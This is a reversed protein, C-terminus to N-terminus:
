GHKERRWKDPPQQSARTSFTLDDENEPLYKEIGGLGDSSGFFVEKDDANDVVLLWPGAAKSGLYDQVSQKPDEGKAQQTIPLMKLMNVYAQEFAAKTTAPVSFVSYDPKNDKVWYAFSLALQTKGVGGLGVVAVKQSSNNFLRLLHKGNNQQQEVRIAPLGERESIRGVALFFENTFRAVLRSNESLYNTTHASITSAKGWASLLTHQLGSEVNFRFYQGDVGHLGNLRDAVKKSSTAMKKLANLIDSRSDVGAVDGMATGISLIQLKRGPFRRKAKGILVECPNNYGFAADIFEIGDRGVQIPKFFTTAASTARAVQWIKSGQLNASTDYTTFLTPLADVNDKTIALVVGSSKLRLVGLIGPEDPARDLTHGHTVHSEVVLTGGRLRGTSDVTAPDVSADLVRFTPKLVESDSGYSVVGDVSVWSWTPTGRERPPSGSSPRGGYPDVTWFLERGLNERWMGALYEGSAGFRVQLARQFQKALGSLAPLRDAAFTVDGVTFLTVINSWRKYAAELTLYKERRVDRLWGFSGINADAVVNYPQNAEDEGAGRINAENAWSCECAWCDDCQWWLEDATYYLVRRSLVREQVTWARRALPLEDPRLIWSKARRLEGNQGALNLGLPSGLHQDAPSKRAYVEVDRFIFSNQHEASGFLQSGFIGQTCGGSRAAAITLTSSSYVDGMRSSERVWDDEDGQIICLADIWLYRIGLYRCIRIADSATQPLESMSIGRTFSSLTDKTTKLQGGDGWCYSLTAYRGITGNTEVLVPNGGETGVDIVRTPMAAVPEVRCSEHNTTCDELWRRALRLSEYCGSQPAVPDRARISPHPSKVGPSVFISLMVSDQDRSSIFRVELTSDSDKPPIIHVSSEGDVEFSSSMKHILLCTDCTTEQAVDKLDALNLHENKRALDNCICPDHNPTM